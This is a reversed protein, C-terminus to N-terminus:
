PEDKLDGFKFFDDYLQRHILWRGFLETLNGDKRLANHGPYDKEFVFILKERNTLGKGELETLESHIIKRKGEKLVIISTTDEPDKKKTLIARFRDEPTEKNSMRGWGRLWKLYLM